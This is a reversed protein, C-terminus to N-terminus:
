RYLFKSTFPDRSCVEAKKVREVQTISTGNWDEELFPLIQFRGNRFAEKSDPEMVLVNELQSDNSLDYDRHSQAGIPQDSLGNTIFSLRDRQSPTIFAGLLEYLRSQIKPTPILVTPCLHM